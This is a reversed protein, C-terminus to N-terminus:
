RHDSGGAAGRRVNGTFMGQPQYPAPQTPPVQWSALRAVDARFAAVGTMQPPGTGGTKVHVDKTALAVRQEFGGAGIAVRNREDRLNWHLDAALEVRPEAINWGVGIM